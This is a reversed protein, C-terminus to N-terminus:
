REVEGVQIGYHNLVLLPLVDIAPVVESQKISAQVFLVISGM